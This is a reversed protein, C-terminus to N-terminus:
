AEAIRFTQKPTLSSEPGGSLRLTEPQEGNSSGPDAPLPVSMRCILGEPEFLPQVTGDFQELAVALLRLGFGRVAPTTVAPGDSEQWEVSLTTGYPTADPRPSLQWRILVHGSPSSFAGHKAANTALEHVILAMSLALKPPLTVKPGEIRTRAHEYPGVEASVIEDLRAGKGQAAMILDDTASLASLRRAIADRLPPNARLQYGVISQITAVKNKLRHALEDVVMQRFNEEATLKAILARHHNAGLAIIISTVAYAVLGVAGGSSLPFFGYFPPIFGWWGIIGGLAAAFLGPRLGGIFAAFLTAPFFTVFPLVDTGFPVITFRFLAAISVLATAFLYAASSDPAIRRISQLIQQLVPFAAEL